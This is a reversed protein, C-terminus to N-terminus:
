LYYNLGISLSGPNVDFGFDWNENKYDVGKRRSYNLHINGFSAEIGLKPTLFYILGPTLAVSINGRGTNFTEVPLNFEYAYDAGASVYFLLKDTIEYNRRVFAGIGTHLNTNDSNEYLDNHSSYFGLNITAGIVLNKSLYFGIDPRFTLSTSSNGTVANGGTSSSETHTYFNLWGGIFMKRNESQSFGPMITLITLAFFIAKKM